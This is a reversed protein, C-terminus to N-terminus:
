VGDLAPEIQAIKAKVREIVARPNEGYRMTAIRRGGFTRWATHDIPVDDAATVGDLWSAIAADYASLRAFAKAALRRRMALSVAAGNAEMESAVADYDAEDVIVAVHAFNKAAARTMTPGGVDITEVLADPGHGAAIAAEFPYLSSVVLGIPAFGAGELAALHDPKGLDALLGGHIAPHLTKVRGDLMEPFGTLSAVETVALGAETLAHATGGTSVLEIGMAALRRAFPVLGTKDSVSLLAREVTQITVTM